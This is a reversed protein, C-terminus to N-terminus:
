GGQHPQRCGAGSRPFGGTKGRQDRRKQGGTAARHSLACLAGPERRHRAGMKESALTLGCVQVPKRFDFKRQWLGDLVAAPSPEALRLEIIFDSRANLLSCSDDLLNTASPEAAPVDAYEVDIIDPEGGQRM